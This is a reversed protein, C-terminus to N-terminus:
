KRRRGTAVAALSGFLLLAVSTPEPVRIILQPSFRGTSNDGLVSGPCNTQGAGSTGDCSFPSGTPPTMGSSDPDWNNDNNLTTMEKPIFLFNHNLMSNSDPLVGGQSQGLTDVGLHMILTVTDRGADQADFILQRLEGNTDAYELPMGVPYRNAGESFHRPLFWQWDGLTRVDDNFDDYLGLTKYINTPDTDGGFDGCSGYETCFPTLGPASLYTIGSSQNNGGTGIGEPWDYKYHPSEFTNGSRDTMTTTGGLDDAYVNGPELGRLTMKLRVRVNPDNSDRFQVRGDTINNNRVYGRFFVNFTSWFGPDDDHNPLGSIDFKMYMMSSRDSNNAEIGQDLARTALETSSGFQATPFVAPDLEGGSNIGFERVETDAGKGLNTPIVISAPADGSAGVLAATAVCLFV